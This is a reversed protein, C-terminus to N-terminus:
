KRSLSLSKHLHGGVASAAASDGPSQKDGPPVNLGALSRAGAGFARITPRPARPRLGREGAWARRDLTAAMGGRVVPGTVPSQRAAGGTARSM